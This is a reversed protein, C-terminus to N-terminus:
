EINSLKQEPRGGRRNLHKSLRNLQQKKLIIKFLFFCTKKESVALNGFSWVVLGFWWDASVQSKMESQYYTNSLTQQVM